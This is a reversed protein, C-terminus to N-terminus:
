EGGFLVKIRGWTSSRTSVETENFYLKNGGAGDLKGLLVDFDDDGDVDGASISIVDQGDLNRGSFSFTGTGDNLWIPNGDVMHTSIADM